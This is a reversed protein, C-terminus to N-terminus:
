LKVLRDFDEDLKLGWSALIDDSKEGDETRTKLEEIQERTINKLALWRNELKTKMEKGTEINGKVVARELRTWMKFNHYSNLRNKISTGGAYMEVHYFYWYVLSLFAIFNTINFPVSYNVSLDEDISLTSTANMHVIDSFRTSRALNSYTGTQYKRLFSPSYQKLYKYYSM